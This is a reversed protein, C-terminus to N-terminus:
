ELAITTGNAQKLVLKLGTAEPNIDFVLATKVAVGPPFQEGLSTLRQYRVYSFIELKTSTDYKVGGADTAQFDFTNIPFNQSGINTLTLSVVLWQGLADVTSGTFDGYKLAKVREVKTVTYQWNGSRVTDGVKPGPTATAAASAALTPAAAAPAGTSREVTTPGKNRAGLGIVALVIFFAILGACGIGIKKLM